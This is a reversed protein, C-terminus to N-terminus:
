LSKEAGPRLLSKQIPISWWRLNEIIGNEALGTNLRNSFIDIEGLLEILESVWLTSHLM